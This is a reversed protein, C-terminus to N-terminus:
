ASAPKGSLKGVAQNLAKGELVDIQADIRAISQDVRLSAYQALFSGIQDASANALAAGRQSTSHLDDLDVIIEPAAFQGPISPLSRGKSLVMAGAPEPKGNDSDNTSGQTEPLDTMGYLSLLADVAEDTLGQSTDFGLRRCDNYVTSKGVGARKSFQSLSISINNM